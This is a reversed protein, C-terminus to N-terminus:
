EEELFRVRKQRESLLSVDEVLRERSALKIETELRYIMNSVDQFLHTVQELYNRLTLLEREFRKM